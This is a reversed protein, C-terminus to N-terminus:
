RVFLCKGIDNESHLSVSEIRRWLNALSIYNLELLFCRMEVSHLIMWEMLDNGFVLFKSVSKRQELVWFSSISYRNFSIIHNKQSTNYNLTKTASIFTYWHSETHCEGPFGPKIQPSQGRQWKSLAMWSSETNAIMQLVSSTLLLLTPPSQTLLTLCVLCSLCMNIWRPKKLRTTKDISYM